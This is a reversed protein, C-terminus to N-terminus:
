RGRTVAQGPSPTAQPSSTVAGALTSASGTAGFPIFQATVVPNWITMPGGTDVQSTTLSYTHSGPSAAFVWQLAMPLYTESSPDGGDSITVPSDTGSGNDHLYAEVICKTCSTGQFIDSALLTAQVKVFGKFPVTITVQGDTETAQVGFLTQNSSMGVRTLGNARYGGLLDSNLHPILTSNSLTLAPKGVASTLSLATAGTGTSTNTVQLEPGATAGTLISTANVSNTKGLNFIAGVGSGALAATAGMAVFAGVGGALAGKLFTGIRM